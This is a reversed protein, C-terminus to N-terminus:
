KSNQSKRPEASVHAVIETLGSIFLQTQGKVHASTIDPTLEGEEEPEVYVTSIVMRM